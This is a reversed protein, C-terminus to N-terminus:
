AKKRSTCFFGLPPVSAAVLITPKILVQQGGVREEVTDATLLHPDTRCHLGETGDWQLHGAVM